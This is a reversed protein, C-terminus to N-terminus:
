AKNKKIIILEKRQIGQCRSVRGKEGGGGGEGENEQPWDTREGFALKQVNNM